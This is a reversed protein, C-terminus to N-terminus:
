DVIDFTLGANARLRGILPEAMAAAPTWVGGEVGLDDQALCVGCEALMKATSGYGPDRDGTVRAKILSGDPLHGALVLTFFGAQREEQTPGEGPKPLFRGRLLNRSWDFSAGAVLAGLGATMAAAKLWGAAGKGSLVAEDYRFDKGWPYGMLANSRRVVRVNVSAMLFPATWAKLDEDFRIDQQERTDPGDREGAPNLSYPHTIMRALERDNRAEEMLNFMSSYTGGSLGGKAAKVLLKISNCTSGRLRRAETQLYWVGIDSPVSDFGCCHLVRAGSERAGNAYADIMRRIFQTEGALDCYHTGNEVCASVLKEGHLAYPGVTTIVVRTKGAMDRLSAEDHSDAQLVPLAGCDEGLRQKLQALKDPSRGAIAWRLDGGVGYKDRLYEAVLAGTFGTAGWVVVDLERDKKM